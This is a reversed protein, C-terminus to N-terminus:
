ASELRAKTAAITNWEGELVTGDYNWLALEIVSHKLSDCILSTGFTVGGNIEPRDILVYDVNLSVTEEIDALVDIVDSRNKGRVYFSCNRDNYLAEFEDIDGQDTLIKVDEWTTLNALIGFDM